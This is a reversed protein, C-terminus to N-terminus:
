VPAVTDDDGAGTTSVETTDSTDDEEDDQGLLEDKVAQLRDHADDSRERFIEWEAPTPSRNENAIMEVRETFAKLDDYADDGQALIAGLLGLLESAESAKVTGGGGLLPNTLMLRVGSIATLVLTMPDM